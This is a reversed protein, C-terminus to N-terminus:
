RLKYLKLRQRLTNRSIGLFKAAHVENNKQKTMALRFLAEEAQSIFNEFVAGEQNRAIEEFLPQFTAYNEQVSLKQLDDPRGYLLSEFDDPLLTDGKSFVIASNIVNKLERINGPWPFALLMKLASPSLKMLPKRNEQSSKKVFFNILLPIDELRDRLPPLFIAAVKLRYFLDMRFSKERLANILSRNTATIIRVDVKISESGGVRQFEQNELVRLLKAQNKLSMEAIEDLFITGGTCQEFRGIHRNSADTFAGKEHGFLESELLTDPLAACNVALFPKNKRRSNNYISRALLEKGTGSEGQILVAVDSGSIQGVMKWIEIMEPSSGIMVDADDEDAPPAASEVIRIERTLSSSQFAKNIIAELKNMDMPKTLYDYAGYKMAEIANQTTVNGSMMIVFVHSDIAKIEELLAIGSKQPLTIDILAVQPHEERVCELVAQGDKEPFTTMDKAAFYKSLSDLIVPDDDVILLKKIM